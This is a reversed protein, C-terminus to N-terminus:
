FDFGEEILDLRLDRQSRRRHYPRMRKRFVRRAERPRVPDGPRFREALKYVRDPIAVFDDEYKFLRFVRPLRILAHAIRVKLHLMKLLKRRNFEGLLFGTQEILEKEIRLLFSDSFFM